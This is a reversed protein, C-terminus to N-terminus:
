PMYTALLEDIKWTHGEREVIMESEPTKQFGLVALGLNSKVHVAVVILSAKESALRARQQGLLAAMPSACGQTQEGQQNTLGTALTGYLMSCAPAAKDAAAAAYYSKVLNTIALKDVRSAEGGYASLLPREDLGVVKLPSQDDGDEDGDLRLYDGSRTAHSAASTTGGCGAAAFGLAITALLTVPMGQLANDLRSLAM